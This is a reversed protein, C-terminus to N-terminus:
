IMGNASRRFLAILGIVIVVAFMIVIIPIWDVFDAIGQTTGNVIETVQVNDTTTQYNYDVRWQQNMFSSGPVALLGGSTENFTYNGPNSIAVGTENLIVTLTFDSSRDSDTAGQVVYVATDNIPNITYENAVSLTNISSGASDIFSSGVLAALFIIIGIIFLTLLAMGTQELQTKEM